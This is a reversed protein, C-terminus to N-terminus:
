RPTSTPLLSGPAPAPAAGVTVDQYPLLPAIAPFVWVFLVTVVLVALGLCELAKVWRNGPLARWLAAYM